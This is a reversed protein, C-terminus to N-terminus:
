RDGFGIRHQRREAGALCCRTAAIRAPLPPRAIEGVNEVPNHVSITSLELHIFSLRFERARTGCHSMLYQSNSQQISRKTATASPFLM